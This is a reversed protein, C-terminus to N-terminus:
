MRSPFSNVWEASMFEKLRDRIETCDPRKHNEFALCSWVLECLERPLEDSMPFRSRVHMENTHGAQSGLSDVHGGVGADALPFSMSTSDPRNGTICEWMVVGLSYIDINQFRVHLDPVFKSFWCEPAM